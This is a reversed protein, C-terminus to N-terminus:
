LPTMGITAERRHFTVRAKSFFYYYASTLVCTTLAFAAGAGFTGRRVTECDPPNEFFVTRYRTHYASQVLGALLCAEAIIFTLRPAARSPVSPSVSPSSTSSCSPPWCRPPPPWPTPDASLRFSPTRKTRRARGSVTAPAKALQSPSPVFPSSPCACRFQDEVDRSAM